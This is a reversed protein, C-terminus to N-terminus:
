VRSEINFGETLALQVICNLKPTVNDYWYINKRNDIIRIIVWIINLYIIWYTHMWIYSYMFLLIFVLFPLLVKRWLYVGNQYSIFTPQYIDQFLKNLSQHTGSGQTITKNILGVINHGLQIIATPDNNLNRQVLVQSGKLCFPLCFWQATNTKM